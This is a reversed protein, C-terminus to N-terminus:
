TKTPKKTKASINPTIGRKQPCVTQEELCMFFTAVHAMNWLKKFVHKGQAKAGTPQQMNLKKEVACLFNLDVQKGLLVFM